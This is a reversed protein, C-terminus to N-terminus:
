NPNPECVYNMSQAVTMKSPFTITVTTATSSSSTTLWGMGSPPATTASFVCLPPSNYAPTLTATGSVAGVAISVTGKSMNPNGAPITDSAVNSYASSTSGAVAKVVYYYTTGATVTSDQYTTTTVPTTTLLTYPGGSVTGRYVNYGSVGSSTSATWTLTTYTQSYSGAALCLMMGLLILIKKTM